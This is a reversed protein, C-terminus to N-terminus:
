SIKNQYTLDKMNQALPYDYKLICFSFASLWYWCIMTNIITFFCLVSCGFVSGRSPLTPLSCTQCVVINHWTLFTFHRRMMTMICLMHLSMRNLPSRDVPVQPSLCCVCSCITVTAWPGTDVGARGVKMVGLIKQKLWFKYCGFTIM